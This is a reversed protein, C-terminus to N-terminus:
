HAYQLAVPLKWLSRGDHCRNLTRLVIAKVRENALAAGGAVIFNGDPSFAVAKIETNISRRYINEGTSVEWLEIYGESNGTVIYKGDSSFDVSLSDGSLHHLQTQAITNQAMVFCVLIVVTMCFFNKRM